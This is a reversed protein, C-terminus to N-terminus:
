KLKLEPLFPSEPRPVLKHQLPDVLLDM